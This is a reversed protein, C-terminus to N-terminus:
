ADLEARLAALHRDYCDRDAGPEDTLGSTQLLTRAAGFLRAARLRDGDLHAVAGLGELCDIAGHRQGSDRCIALAERYRAAAVEPDFRELAIVGGLLLAFHLAALSVSVRGATVAEEVLAAAAAADGDALTAIAVQAGCRAIDPASGIMRAVGLAQAYRAKAGPTDGKGEAVAGLLALVRVRGADDGARGALEEAHRALEEAEEPRGLRYRTGAAGYLARAEGAPEDLRNWITRAQEFDEEAAGYRALNMALSGRAVLLEARVAEALGTPQALVREIWGSGEVTRGSDLWWRYLAAALRGAVATEGAELAWTLAARLNDTEPELWELQRVDTHGLPPRGREASALYQEAHRRRADTVEGAAELRELAYERFTELMEFRPEGEAGRRRRVLASDVLAPLAGSPNPVVEDSLADIAEATAGGAFVGLRAFLRQSAPPLLDYSWDIAGRITRQRDPLDRAGETLLDLRRELRVLIEEPSLTDVRAAALEIALPLGELARCIDGVAAGNAGTLEFGPEVDQAREVFLDVSESAPPGAEDPLTLSPVPYRREGYLRLPTRSTALITLAACRQLLEALMPTAPLLHELNDLVLLLRRDGIHEAVARLPSGGVSDDAALTQAITPLVLDPDAVSAFPIFTVGGPHRDAVREAAAIALRTKGIGGPGTLTLLRCGALMRVADNLEDHRGVLATMQAPLTVTALDGPAPARLATRAPPSWDLESKQLLIAEELRQLEPSPELGLEDALTRRLAQYAALADAQRGSRYLALMLKGRVGERLPHGAVLTELEGILAAHHGLALRAEVRGEVAALRAEELRAAAAQAFPESALEGLADGRWQGLARDYVALADDWRGDLLARDGEAAAAEFRTVDLQEPEIRIAYGAPASVLLRHQGTRAGSELLRRLLSVYTHLNGTTSAPPDAGWLGEVLRDLSVVQNAQLLLVVLLARLKPRSVEIQRTGDTVELPGLLKFEVLGVPGASQQDTLPTSRRM